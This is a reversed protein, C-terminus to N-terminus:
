EFYIITVAGTALGRKEGVILDIVGDRDFDSSNITTVVGSVNGGSPDSPFFPIQGTFMDYLELRGNYANSTRLGVVIDQWDDPSFKGVHICEISGTAIQRFDNPLGNPALTDGFQWTLGQPKHLNQWVEIYGSWEGDKTGVIIDNDEDNDLNEIVVGNPEGATVLFTDAEFKLNAPDINRFTILRGTNLGTIESIVFDPHNDNDLDGVAIGTIEGLPEGFITDYRGQWFFDTGGLNGWVEIHGNSDSDLTAFIVDYDGDNNIDATAIATLPAHWSPIKSVSNTTEIQWNGTIKDSYWFRLTGFGSSLGCVLDDRIDNNFDWTKSCTVPVYFGGIITGRKYDPVSDFLGSRGPNTPNKYKNHWCYINLDPLDTTMIIDVDNDGDIDPCNLDLAHGALILQTSQYDAFARVEITEGPVTAFTDVFNSNISVYGPPDTEIVTFKDETIALFYNGSSDSLGSNMYGYASDVVTIKAGLLPRDVLNQYVSDKNNDKFVFGKVFYMGSRAGCDVLVSEDASIYFEVSDGIVVYTTGPVQETVHYGTPALTDPLGVKVFTTCAANVEMSYFGASDTFTSFGDTFKVGMNPLGPELGVNREGFPVITDLYVYGEIYATPVITDGFHAKVNSSDM